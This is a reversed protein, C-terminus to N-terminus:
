EPKDGGPADGEPPKVPKEQEEEKWIQARKPQRRVQLPDFQDPRKGRQATPRMLVIDRSRKTFPAIPALMPVGFSKQRALIFLHLYASFSIGIFGFVLAFGTYLYRLLRFSFTSSFDPLVFAALGTLATVILLIPNIIETAI